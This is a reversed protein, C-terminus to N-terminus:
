SLGRDLVQLDQLLRAEDGNVTDTAGDDVAEVRGWQSRDLRRPNVPQRLQAHPHVAAGSAARDDRCHVPWTEGPRFRSILDAAWATGWDSEALPARPHVPEAAPSSVCRAPCEDGEGAVVTVVVLAYRTM